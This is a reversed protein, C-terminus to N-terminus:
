EWPDVARSLARRWRRQQTSVQAAEPIGVESPQQRHPWLLGAGSEGAKKGRARRQGSLGERAGGGGWSAGSVIGVLVLEQPGAAGSPHMGEMLGLM